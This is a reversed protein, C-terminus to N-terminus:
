YRCIDNTRMKVNLYHCVEDLNREFEHQSLVNDGYLHDLVNQMFDAAYDLRQNLDKCKGCMCEDVATYADDYYTDYLRSM